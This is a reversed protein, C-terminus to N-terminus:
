RAPVARVKMSPLGGPEQDLIVPRPEDACSPLPERYYYNLGYRLARHLREVCIRDKQREVRRALGRASVVQDVAPFASLQISVFGLLAAMAVVGAAATRRQRDEFWWALAAFPLAAAVYEWPLSGWQARRIGALLADPLASGAVPALALLLAAVPLARRTEYAERLGVALLAALSPFLPLVYGPLKNASASFFVLGFVVTAAWVRRPASNWLRPMLGGVLPIWPYLLGLLVPVYFWFPQVHQLEGSSFRSFHHRLFFEEIFAWGHRWVMGAYWPLAVVTAWVAALGLDRWERRAFWLLPLALVGAVLGKALLALGFCAGAAGALWRPGGQLRLMALLLAANFAAALPLDTVAILSYAFWGATTSLIMAAATATVWGELRRLCVWFLMVFGWSLVAIPLRPALDEPLGAHFGLAILWYLLPPKEYWPELAAAAPPETWLRPTLFDGSEAMHRGIFAYRPEDPGLLGTLGLGFTLCGLLIAAAAALLAARGASLAEPAAERSPTFM